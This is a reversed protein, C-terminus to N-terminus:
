NTEETVDFIIPLGLYDPLAEELDEVPIYHNYMALFSDPFEDRINEVSVGPMGDLSRNSVVATSINFTDRVATRLKRLLPRTVYWDEFPKILVVRVAWTATPCSMTDDRDSILAPSEIRCFPENDVSDDLFRWDDIVVSASIFADAADLQTTRIITQMQEIITTDSM